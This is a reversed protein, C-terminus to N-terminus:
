STLSTESAGSSLAIKKKLKKRAFIYCIVHVLFTAGWSIAYSIYITDQTHYQPIDFMTNIWVLRVGCVGVLSVIMPMISYGIGRIAGVMVDMIGCLAYPICIYKLRTMGAAITQPLPDRAYILLLKDGLFYILNGLVLGTVTVCLLGTITIRTLRKYKGAGYNQGTFNLTAHHFANMSVYAFAEINAAASSGAMVSKGFSNISSQIIVNSLSFITGQLGAPLGVRLIIGLFKKYIRLEKLKCGYCGKERVLLIMVCIASIWQSIASAIGVGMVGMNFVLVFVLNFAINILGGLLLFYLPRKTDGIARLVASGFNYILMGPIGIFYMRLYRTSLDIVDTDVKMLVLFDKAFIEGFIILAIGCLISLLMSTQVTKKVSMHDGAGFFRAVAVNSGVSLGIFLNTLLNILPGNSGVAALADEGCYNGVVIVDAANFLLQLISSAMLPFAFRLMKGLISGTTMDLEFSKKKKM